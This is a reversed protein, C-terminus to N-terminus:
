DGKLIRTLNTWACPLEDETMTERERFNLLIDDTSGLSGAAMRLSFNLPFATRPVVGEDSRATTWDVRSFKQSFELFRTSMTAHFPTKLWEQLQPAEHEQDEHCLQFICM